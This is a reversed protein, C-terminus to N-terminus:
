CVDAHNRGISTILEKLENIYEFKDWREIDCITFDVLIDKLLQEKFKARALDNVTKSSAPDLPVFWKHQKTSDQSPIEPAARPKSPEPPFDFLEKQPRVVLLLARKGGKIPSVGDTIFSYGSLPSGTRGDLKWGDPMAEYLPWDRYTLMTLRLVFINALKVNCSCALIGGSRKPM